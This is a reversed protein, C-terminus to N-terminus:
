TSALRRRIERLIAIRILASGPQVLTWYRAFRRRSSEDGCLIRTETRLRSRGGALPEVTFNWLARAVGAPVPDRLTALDAACVDPRLQWFRGEIGLVIEQPPDEAVIAFGERPADRLTIPSQPRRGRHFLSPLKRIGMLARIILPRSLDTSMLADYVEASAAELDISHVENFDFTPLYQDILM